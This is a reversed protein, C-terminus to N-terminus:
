RVVALDQEFSERLVNLLVRGDALDATWSSWPNGQIGLAESLEVLGDYTDGDAYLRGDPLVQAVRQDVGEGVVITTGSPLVDADVLERLEASTGSVVPKTEAAVEEYQVRYHPDALRAMADRVVVSMLKRREELFVDFSM